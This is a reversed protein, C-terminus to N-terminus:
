LKRTRHSKTLASVVLAGFQELDALSPLRGIWLSSLRKEGNMLITESVSEAMTCGAVIIWGRILVLVSLCLM